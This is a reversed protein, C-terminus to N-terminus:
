QDTVLNSPACPVGAKTPCTPLPPPHAREYQEHWATITYILAIAAILLQVAGAFPHALYLFIGAIVLVALTFGSFWLVPVWDMPPTGAREDARGWGRVGLTLALLFAVPIEILLAILTLCGGAFGDGRSDPPQGPQCGNGPMRPTRSSPEFPMTVREYSVGHVAGSNVLGLGLRPQACMQDEM